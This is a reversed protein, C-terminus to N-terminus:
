FSTGVGIGIHFRPGDYYGREKWLRIDKGSLLPFHYIAEGITGTEVGTIEGVVTVPRDPRYVAQDLFERFVVKFRGGSEDGEKPRGQWNLPKELIELITDEELNETTIIVGGLRVVRGEYTQPSALIAPFPIKEHNVKHSTQRGTASCGFLLFAFVLFLSTVALTSQFSSLAKGTSAHRMPWEKNGNRDYEYWIKSPGTGQGNAEKRVGGAKNRKGKEEM